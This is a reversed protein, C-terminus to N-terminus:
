RPRSSALRQMATVHCPESTAHGSTATIPVPLVAAVRQRAPRFKEKSRKQPLSSYIRFLVAQADGLADGQTGAQFPSVEIRFIMNVTAPAANNTVGAMASAAGMAPGKGIAPTELSIM